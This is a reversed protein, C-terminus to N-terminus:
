RTLLLPGLAAGVGIAGLLLGYGPGAHFRREALIVLLASTAAASLAALLQVIALLRLLRNTILLRAGEGIRRAWSGGATLPQTRAPRLPALTGVSIAFSAANLWFAPAV